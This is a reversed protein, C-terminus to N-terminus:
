TKGYIIGSSHDASSGTVASLINVRGLYKLVGLLGFILAEKYDIVLADGIILQARTGARMREVLFKNWSGGGSLLVTSLEQQNIVNSIQTAIHEVYTRLLNHSKVPHNTILPKINEQVWEMGLSKPHPASYYPLGNLKLLLEPDTEGSSALDGNKDYDHGLANAVENLLINVPCIDFAVRGSGSEFSINSFGGLNLCGDYQGFLLRDGLPVLPAGQGGLAVDQVRFDCVVPIQLDAWVEPGNGLQYTFGAEPRHFLTHGHSCILDVEHRDITNISMFSKICSALLKGYDANLTLTQMTNQGEDFALRDRWATTYEMTEAALIEYTWRNSEEILRCYVIDLGDLSTGSMLAIVKFERKEAHM